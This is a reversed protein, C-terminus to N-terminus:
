PSTRRSAAPPPASAPVASAATGSEVPEARRTLYTMEFVVTGGPGPDRLERVSGFFSSAQLSQVVASRPVEPGIALSLRLAQGELRLERLLVGSPPLAQSVRSLLELPPPGDLVQSVKELRLADRLVRERQALAPGAEGRARDREAVAADRLAAAAHWEHARWGAALALSAALGAWLMREGAGGQRHLDDVPVARVWPRSRWPTGTDRLPVDVARSAVRGRLFAQWQVDDPMQPWWHSEEPLGDRWAQAEFGDLCAHLRVGETLPPRMLGEPCLLPGRAKGRPRAELLGAVRPGDWAFALARSGVLAVLYTAADMPSWASLQLSVAAQRDRTRVGSLDIVRTRYLARSLLVARGTAAWSGRPARSWGAQTVREFTDPGAM